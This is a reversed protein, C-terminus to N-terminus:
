FTQGQFRKLLEKKNPRSVPIPTNGIMVIPPKASSIKDLRVIYSHHIRLFEHVPLKILIDKMTSHITFKESSTYIVVYDALAKIYLIEKRNIKVLRSDTRVIFVDSNIDNISKSHLEIEELASHKERIMELMMQLGLYLDTFEDRKRPISINGSFDGVSVNSFLPLLAELKKIVRRDYKEQEKSKLQIAKKAM